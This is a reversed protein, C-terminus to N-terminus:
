PQHLGSDADYTALLVDVDVISVSDSLHNVVWVTGDPAVGVACPEMGVQVSAAAILGQDTVDFIELRNGPTNVSYLRSADASMALPRVPGTEFTLFDIARGPPAGLLLLLAAVLAGRQHRFM